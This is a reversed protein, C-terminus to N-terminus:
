RAVNTGGSVDKAPRVEDGDLRPPKSRDESVSSQDRSNKKRIRVM